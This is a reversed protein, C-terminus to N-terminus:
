NQNEQPIIFTGYITLCIARLSEEQRYNAMLIGDSFSGEKLGDKDYTGRAVIRRPNVKSVDEFSGIFKRTQRNFRGRRIITACSDDILEYRENYYAIVSDKGFYQLPQGRLPPPSQAAVKLSLSALLLLTAFLHKM